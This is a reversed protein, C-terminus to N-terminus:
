YDPFFGVVPRVTQLRAEDFSSRLAPPFEAFQEPSFIKRAERMGDVGIDFLAQTTALVRREAEVRDYREPLAVLYEVTPGVVVDMRATVDANLATLQQVQAYTVSTLSDKARLLAGVPNFFSSMLRARLQAAPMRTGPRSRGTSLMQDVLQHTAPQGLLLRVEFTAVFPSRIVSRSSRTDGFRQNVEYAYRGTAPDFGRVILLTPDPAAPQGWGHLGNRHLLADLGAPVNTFSLSVQARNDWRFLEPNLALVANMSSTWPGECSNQGAISNMQRQLCRRVGSSAGAQLSTMGSRVASDASAPDYVFARDNAFGDGNIDSSVLPTFPLGSSFRATTALSLLSGLHTTFTATIQHRLDQSGRAWTVDLPNGATTGGFGRSQAQVRQYVYALQWQTFTLFRGGPEPSVTLLLQESRSRLDTRLSTVNGFLSDVRSDRITLAGTERVISSPAVYVPRGGESALSLLPVASFNLDAASPQRLNISYIGEVTFRAKGPILVSNLALNSRWSRQAAFSEDILFVNPQQSVFPSPTGGGLCSTPITTGDNAYAAWDPVPVASGVCTLRRVADPLGTALLAPAILTAPVDNRFLGIGGRISGWPTGFGPVGITGLDGFARFFGVRPSLDAVSPTFDTRAGFRSAIAPNAAPHDLFQNADLRLGYIITAREV